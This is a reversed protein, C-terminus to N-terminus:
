LGGSVSNKFRPFALPADATFPSDMSCCCASSAQFTQFLYFSTSILRHASKRHKLSHNTIQHLFLIFKRITQNFYEYQNFDM